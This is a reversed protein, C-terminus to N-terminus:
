RETVLETTATIFSQLKSSTQKAEITHLFSSSFDESDYICGALYPFLKFLYYFVIQAWRALTEFAQILPQSLIQNKFLISCTVTTYIGNSVNRPPFGVVCSMTGGLQKM